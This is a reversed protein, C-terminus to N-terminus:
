NTGKLSKKNGAKTVIHLLQQWARKMPLAQPLRLAHKQLISTHKYCDSPTRTRELLQETLLM